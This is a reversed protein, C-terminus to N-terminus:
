GNCRSNLMRDIRTFAIRALYAERDEVGLAVILDAGGPAPAMGCVFEVGKHAFVFPRSVRMVRFASDYEVFRHLYIREWGQDPGQRHVVEHVLVIQRGREDPWSVPGGSGRWTEANVGPAVEREVDYAGSEISLRLVTLPDYSYIARLQGDAGAFPLWNKQHRGDFPGILPRHSLVRGHDDIRCLSQHVFGSPHRDATVCTFYVADRAAVLRCDELGRVRADRSPPDDFEIEHEELVAFRDDLRMLVNRTRYVGDDELARYRLRRQEYNVGRCVVLFGTTTRLISPNCARYPAPLEPRLPLYEVGEIPVAYSAALRQASEVAAHPASRSLAVDECAAFGRPAHRTGVASQALQLDLGHEYVDAHVFFTGSWPVPMSRGRDAFAIAHSVDNRRLHLKSLEYCPEAREPAAAHADMLAACAADLHGADALITGMCFNSYWVEEHDDAFAARRRYLLLAKMADGMARYSQALYFVARSDAPTEALQESLWAIDRRLKMAKSGGDGHDRIWLNSFRTFPTQEPCTYREHTRGVAAWDLSARALRLNWHSLSKSRQRLALADAALSARDFQAGGMMELDADLFLWYTRDLPWGMEDVFRRAEAIAATRNEGFNKWPHHCIRFPLGRRSLYDRALVPTADTSGTDCLVAADIIPLAATLCRDIIAGENRVIM